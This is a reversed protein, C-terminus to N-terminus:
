EQKNEKYYESGLDRGPEDLKQHKGDIRPTEQSLSAESLEGMDDYLM